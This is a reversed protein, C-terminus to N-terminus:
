RGKRLRQILRRVEVVVPCERGHECYWGYRDFFVMHFTQAKGVSEVVRWLEQVSTDPGCVLWPDLPEISITREGSLRSSPPM